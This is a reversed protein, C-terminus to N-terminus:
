SLCQLLTKVRHSGQRRKQGGLWPEGCPGAARGGFRGDGCASIRGRPLRRRRWDARERHLQEDRLLLSLDKTAGIAVRQQLFDLDGRVDHHSETSIARLVRPSGQILVVDLARRMLVDDSSRHLKESRHEFVQAGQIAALGQCLGTVHPNAAHQGRLRSRRQDPRPPLRDLLHSRRGEHVHVHLRCSNGGSGGAIQGFLHDGQVPWASTYLHRKGQNCFNHEVERLLGPEFSPRVVRM